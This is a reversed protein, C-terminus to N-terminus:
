LATYIVVYGIQKCISNFILVDSCDKVKSDLLLKISKCNEIPIIIPSFLNQDSLSAFKSKEETKNSIKRGKSTM